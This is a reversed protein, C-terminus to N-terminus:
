SLVRIALSLSLSGYNSGNPCQIESGILKQLQVITSMKKQRYTDRESAGVRRHLGDDIRERMELKKLTGIKIFQKQNKPRIIVPWVHALVLGVEAQACM